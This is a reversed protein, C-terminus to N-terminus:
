YIPMAFLISFYGLSNETYTHIKSVTLIYITHKVLQMELMSIKGEDSVFINLSIYDSLVWALVGM